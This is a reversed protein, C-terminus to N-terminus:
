YVIVNVVKISHFIKLFINKSLLELSKVGTNKISDPLCVKFYLNEIDNSSGVCKDVFVKYLFSMYDNDIIVKSVKCEQNKLLFCSLENQLFNEPNIKIFNGTINKIYKRICM